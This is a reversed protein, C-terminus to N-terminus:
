KIGTVHYTDLCVAGLMIALLARIRVLCLYAISYAISTLMVLCSSIIVRMHTPFKSCRGWHLIIICSSFATQIALCNIRGKLSMHLELEDNGSETIWPKCTLGICPHCQMAELQGLLIISVDSSDAGGSQIALCNALLKYSRFLWASHM